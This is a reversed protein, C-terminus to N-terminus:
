AETIVREPSKFWERRIKKAVSKPIRTIDMLEQGDEFVHYDGQECTIQLSHWGPIQLRRNMMGEAEERRM